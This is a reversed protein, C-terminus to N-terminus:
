QGGLLKLSFLFASTGEAVSWGPEVVLRASDTAHLMLGLTGSLAVASETEIDGGLSFPVGVEAAIAPVLKAKTDLPIAVALEPGFSALLAVPSSEELGSLFSASLGANLGFTAGQGPPNHLILFGLRTGIAYSAVEDDLRTRSFGYVNQIRNVAYEASLGVTGLGTSGRGQEVSTRAVNLSVGGGRQIYRGQASVPVSLLFVSALLLARM